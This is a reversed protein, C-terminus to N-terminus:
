FNKANWIDEGHDRCYAYDAFCKENKLCMVGTILIIITFVYLVISKFKRM